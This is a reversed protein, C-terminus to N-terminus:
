PIISCGYTLDIRVVEPTLATLKSPDVKSADQEMLHSQSPSEEEISAAM